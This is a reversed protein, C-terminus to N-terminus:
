EITQRLSSGGALAQPTAADIARASQRFDQYFGV